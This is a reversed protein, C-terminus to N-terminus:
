DEEEQEEDNGYDKILQDYKEEIKDEFREVLEESSINFMELLTIEDVSVLHEKLEELTTPNTM